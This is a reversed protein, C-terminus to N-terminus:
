SMRERAVQHRRPQPHKGAALQQVGKLADPAFDDRRAAAVGLQTAQRRLTRRLGQGNRQVFLQSGSGQPGQRTLGGTVERRVLDSRDKEHLLSPFPSSGSRPDIHRLAKKWGAHGPPPAPAPNVTEMARIIEPAIFVRQPGQGPLEHLVSGEALRELCTLAAQPSVSLRRAAAAVTMAGCECFHDVLREFPAPLGAARVRARYEDQLVKFRAVRRVDEAARSSVATLFFALWPDWEECEIVGLLLEDYRRRDREFFASLTLLPWPLFGFVCLLRSTVLRAFRGNARAFPRLAHIRVHVAAIRLLPHVEPSSDLSMRLSGLAKLSPRSEGREEDGRGVLIRHLDRLYHVDVSFKRYQPRTYEMARVYAHVEHTEPPIGSETPSAEFRALDWQTAVIGDLRSSSLAELRMFAPIWPSRALPDSLRALRALARGAVQAQAALKPGLPSPVAAAKSRPM